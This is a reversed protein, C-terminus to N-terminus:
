DPEADEFLKTQRGERERQEQRRQQEERKKEAVRETEKRVMKAVEPEWRQRSEINSVLDRDMKPTSNEYVEVGRERLMYDKHAKLPVFRKIDRMLQEREARAVEAEGAIRAQEEDFTKKQIEYLRKAGEQMNKEMSGPNVIENAVAIARSAGSTVDKAKQRLADFRGKSKKDGDRPPRRDM